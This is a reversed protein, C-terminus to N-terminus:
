SYNRTLNRLYFIIYVIKYYNAEGFRDYKSCCKKKRWYHLTRLLLLWHRHTQLCIDTWFVVGGYHRSRIINYFIIFGHIIKPRSDPYNIYLNISYLHSVNRDIFNLNCINNINLLNLLKRLTLSNQSPVFVFSEM